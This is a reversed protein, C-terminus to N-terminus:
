SRALWVGRGLPSPNIKPKDAVRCRTEIPAVPAVRRNLARGHIGIEVGVGGGRPREELRQLAHFPQRPRLRGDGGLGLDAEWALRGQDLEIGAHQHRHGDGQGRLPQGLVVARRDHQEGQQEAHGEVEQVLFAAADRADLERRLGDQPEADGQQARPDGGALDEAQAQRRDDRHDDADARGDGQASKRAL